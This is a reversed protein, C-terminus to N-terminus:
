RVALPSTITVGVLKLAARVTVAIDYAGRTDGHLCVSDVAPFEYTGGVYERTDFDYGWAAVTHETVMQVVRQAIVSPNTFESNPLGRSILRGNHDYGRDAFVECIYRLGFLEAETQMASGPMGMVAAGYEAAHLAILGAIHGNAQADNYLAGHPKIYDITGGNLSAFTALQAGLVANLEEVTLSPKTGTLMSTRGFNDRDPYSPHAGIAVGMMNAKSMTRHMLLPDGSHVGCCINASSIQSLLATNTHTDFEALDANLDVSLM